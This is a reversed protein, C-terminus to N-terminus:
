QRLWEYALAFNVQLCRYILLFKLSHKTTGMPQFRSLLFDTIIGRLRYRHYNLFFKKLLYTVNINHRKKYEGIAMSIKYVCMCIYKHWILGQTLVCILISAMVFYSKFLPHCQPINPHMKIKWTNNWLCSLVSNGKGKWCMWVFQRINIPWLLLSLFLSTLWRATPVAMTMNGLWPPSSLFVGWCRSPLFGGKQQLVKTFM